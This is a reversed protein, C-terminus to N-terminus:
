RILYEQLKKLKNSVTLDIIEDKIELKFGGLVSEDIEEKLIVNQANYKNQIIRQIENRINENLRKSSKLRVIVIGEEKNSIKELQNLIDKSKSLLRKRILFKIVNDILISIDKENKDKSLFYIAEAINNNSITAM